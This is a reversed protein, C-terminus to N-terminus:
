NFHFHVKGGPYLEVPKLLAMDHGYMSIRELQMMGGYNLLKAAQGAFEDKREDPINMKGTYSGFTGM